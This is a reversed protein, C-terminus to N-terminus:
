RSFRMLIISIKKDLYDFVSDAVPLPYHINSNNYFQPQILVMAADIATLLVHLQSYRCSLNNRSVFRCQGMTSLAM